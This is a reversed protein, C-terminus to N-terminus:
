KAPKVDAPKGAAPLGRALAEASSIYEVIRTGDPLTQVVPVRRQAGPDANVQNLKVEKDIILWPKGDKGIVRLTARVTRPKGDAVNVQVQERNAAGGRRLTFAKTKKGSKLKAGGPDHIELEAEASINQKVVAELTKWGAPSADGVVAFDLVDPMTPEATAIRALSAVALWLPLAWRRAGSHSSLLPRMMPTTHTNM